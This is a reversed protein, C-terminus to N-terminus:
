EGDIKFDAALIALVLKFNTLRRATWTLEMRYVCGQDRM